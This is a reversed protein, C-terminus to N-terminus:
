VPRSSLLSNRKLFQLGKQERKGDLYIDGVLTLSVHPPSNPPLERDPLELGELEGKVRPVTPM